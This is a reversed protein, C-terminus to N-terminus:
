ALKSVDIIYLFQSGFYYFYNLLSMANQEISSILFIFGLICCMEKNHGIINM